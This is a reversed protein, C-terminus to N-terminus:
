ELVSAIDAVMEAYAENQVTSTLPTTANDPLLLLQDSM